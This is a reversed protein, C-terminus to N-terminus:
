VNLGLVFNTEGLSCLSPWIKLREIIQVYNKGALVIPIYPDTQM